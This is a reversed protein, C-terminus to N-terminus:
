EAVIKVRHGLASFIEVITRLSLARGDLFQRVRADTLKMKAALDAPMPQVEDAM